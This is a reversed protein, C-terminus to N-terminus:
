RVARIVLRSTPTVPGSRDLDGWTEIITFGVRRLERVLETATYLRLRLVKEVAGITLTATRIGTAWDTEGTERIPGEDPVEEGYRHALFDRHLLEMVLQGGDRLAGYWAALAALDDDRHALYGFSSYLNVVADFPGPPVERMDGVLYRPGPNRVEALEIQRPSADIGVVDHGRDQLRGAIRGFGCPVDLIAAGAPLDLLAVLADTQEDSRDFRGAETWAAVYDDDFFDEWWEM